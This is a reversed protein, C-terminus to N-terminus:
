LHVSIEGSKCGLIPVCVTGKATLMLTSFNFSVTVSFKFGFKSGSFTFSPNSLNLSKQFITASGIPTKIVVSVNIASGSISYSLVLSCGHYSIITVSGSTSAVRAELAGMAAAAGQGPQQAVGVEFGGTDHMGADQAADEYAVHALIDEQTVQTIPM